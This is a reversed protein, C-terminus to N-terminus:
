ESIPIVRKASFGKLGKAPTFEVRQGKTLTKRRENSIISSHHVYCDGEGDDRCIFGFGQEDNFFKVTGLVRVEPLFAEPTLPLKPTDTPEARNSQKNPSDAPAIPKIAPTSMAISM